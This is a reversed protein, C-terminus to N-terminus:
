RFDRWPDLPRVSKPLDPDSLVPHEISHAPRDAARWTQQLYCYVGVFTPLTRGGEAVLQAAIARRCYRVTAGSCVLDDLLMWRHGITGEVVLDSHDTTHKRVIAVHTHLRAALPLAILTGSLGTAVISDFAVAPDDRWARLILALERLVRPFGKPDGLLVRLYDAHCRYLPIEKKM